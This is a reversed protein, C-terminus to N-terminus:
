APRLGEGIVRRNRHLVRPEERELAEPARLHLAEGADLADEGGLEIGLAHEREDDVVRATQEPRRATEVEDLARAPEAAPRPRVDLFPRLHDNEANPNDAGHRLSALPQEEVVVR